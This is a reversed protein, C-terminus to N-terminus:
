QNTLSSAHKFFHAMAMKNVVAMEKIASAMFLAVQHTKLKAITVPISQAELSSEVYHM